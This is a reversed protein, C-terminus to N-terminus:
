CNLLRAPYIYVKWFYSGFSVLVQDVYATVRELMEQVKVIAQELHDMDTLLIASRNPSTKASALVDVLDVDGITLYLFM